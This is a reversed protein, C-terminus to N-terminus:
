FIISSLVTYNYKRRDNNVIYLLERPEMADFYDRVIDRTIKVRSSLYINRHIKCVHTYYKDLMVEKTKYIYNNMYSIHVNRIFEEFAYHIKYFTNRNRPIERIWAPKNNILKSIRRFCFYQYQLNPEIHMMRKRTEYTYNSFKIHEGTRTNLVILGSSGIGNSAVKTQINNTMDTLTHYDYDCISKQKNDLRKPFQIVGNINDFITWTEYETPSIFRASQERINYMSVLYLHPITPIQTHTNTCTHMNTNTNLMFTYSYEKPLLSIIHLDNLEEGENARLAEMFLTYITKNNASHSPLYDGGIKYRTAIEWRQVDGDYFLQVMTGDIYETILIDDDLIPYKEIFLRKNMSKPPSFSLVTKNLFSFVVSKYIGMKDNDYCIMNRDYNLIYYVRDNSYYVKKIINKEKSCVEIDLSYNM